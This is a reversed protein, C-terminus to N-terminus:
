TTEQVPKSIITAWRAKFSTTAPVVDTIGATICPTQAAMAQPAFAVSAFTLAGGMAAVALTGTIRKSIFM